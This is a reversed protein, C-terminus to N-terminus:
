NAMIRKTQPQAIKGAGEGKVGANPAKAGVSTPFGFVPEGKFPSPTLQNGKDDFGWDDFTHQWVTHKNADTVRQPLGRWDTSVAYVHKGQLMSHLRHDTYLYQKTIDNVGTSEAILKHANDYAYYTTQAPTTNTQKTKTNGYLTKSVRNGLSDYTYRAVPTQAQAQAQAQAQSQSQTHMVSILQNATNWQLTLPKGKNLGTTPILQTQRGFSDLQTFSAPSSTNVSEGEGWGEGKLPSPTNFPSAQRTNPTNLAAAVKVWLPAPTATSEPTTATTITATSAPTAQNGQTSTEWVTQTGNGHQVSQMATISPNFAQQKVQNILTQQSWSNPLLNAIGQATSASTLRAIHTLWPRQLDISQTQRSNTQQPNSYGYTLVQGTPLSRNILKGSPDYSFHQTTTFPPQDSAQSDSAQSDSAQSDSAQQNVAYIQQTQKIIRGFADRKFHLTNGCGTLTKLMAGEYM